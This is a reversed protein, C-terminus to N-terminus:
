TSRLAVIPDLKAAHRAPFVGFLLGIGGSICVSITIAPLYIVAEIVTLSAVIFIGAVGLITGIVGGTIAIIVSEIIFQTLIDQQTAGIAKRLGIEKTRETVSVLMINMIGIGGVILSIAAAATLMLTLTGTIKSVTKMADKQTYIVFDDEGIIKHRLRLLNSIQFVASDISEKNKVAATLYNVEIGYPSTRGIIRNATTTIPILTTEDYNIGLNSGKEGLIGVIQFSLNKIKLYQGLPNHNAFLKQALKAGIVTVQNNRKVDIDSFFRGQSIDFERVQLFSPTTGIVNVNTNQNKYTVLQRSNLEATVAEVTPVQAMIAKSDALVLTRPSDSTIRKTEQNGPRVFLVNTGLSELQKIVFKQGGQGIGVMTIISANGIIVGLMTLTSRLKNEILTKRAIQLNELLNM